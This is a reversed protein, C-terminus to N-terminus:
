CLVVFQVKVWAQLQINNPKQLGKACCSNKVLGLNLWTISGLSQRASGQSTMQRFMYVRCILSRSTSKSIQINTQKISNLSRKEAEDCSIVPWNRKGTSVDPVKWPNVAQNATYKSLRSTPPAVTSSFVPGCESYFVKRKKVICKLKEIKMVHGWVGIKVKISAGRQLISARHPNMRGEEQFHTINHGLLFIFSFLQSNIKGMLGVCQFCVRNMSSLGTLKFTPSLTVPVMTRRLFGTQRRWMDTVRSQFM